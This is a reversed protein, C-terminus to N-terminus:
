LSHHHVASLHVVICMTDIYMNYEFEFEFQKNAFGTLCWTKGIYLSLFCSIPTGLLTLLCYMTECVWVRESVCVCVVHM